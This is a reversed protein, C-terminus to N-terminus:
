AQRMEIASPEYDAPVEYGLLNMVTAAVSTLGLGSRLEPSYENNYSPDYLYLPVPNTTHSTKAKMSGDANHKTSGTADHEAMEEANGHDATVLLTGGLEKVAKMLRGIQIDMAELSCITAEYNGTHGIMDGNPYNLRIFEFTGAHMQEIVRDTIDACRMWPRYTFPQAYSPIKEYTELAESFKKSRNGNFFYTVHGFKQEESIALQHVGSASLYEPLTRDIQPPSVLYQRPIHAEGDYELMAAFEVKPWRVRDFESFEPDEFAKTLELMRDGRFNFIIVSDGDEVTGVPQDNEAIVFPPLNQDIEGTEQRLTEIAETTSAFQRGEGLVHTQWGRGVMPWDSGYRDMTIQMRGGGSAIRADFQEDNLETLFQEFPEVYELATTEGVDRGDLLAHIRVRRVGEQKARTVMKRLHEINSHVNGDSFLGIFHLTSNNSKVNDVLKHWTEGDFVRGTELSENVLRAGQAFIRGAGMANHGVESNGMDEDSPLGVATGHAKLRTKFAHQELWDLSETQAASVADGEGGTGYGVGDMIVLVVPGNRQISYKKDLAQVM